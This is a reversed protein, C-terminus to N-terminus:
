IFRKLLTNLFNMEVFVFILGCKEGICLSEKNKIEKLM